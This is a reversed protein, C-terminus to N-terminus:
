GRRVERWEALLARAESRAAILLMYDDSAVLRELLAVTRRDLDARREQKEDWARRAENADYNKGFSV